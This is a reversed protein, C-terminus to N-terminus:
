TLEFRIENYIVHSRWGILCCSIGLNNKKIFFRKNTQLNKFYVRSPNLIFNVNLM